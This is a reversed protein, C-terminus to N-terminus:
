QFLRPNKVISANNQILFLPYNIQPCILFFNSYSFMLWCSFLFNVYCFSYDNYPSYHPTKHCWPVSTRNNNISECHKEITLTDQSTLCEITKIRTQMRLLRLVQYLMLVMHCKICPHWFWYFNSIYYQYILHSCLNQFFIKCPYVINTSTSLKENICLEILLHCWFKCFCYKHNYYGLDLTLNKKELAEM